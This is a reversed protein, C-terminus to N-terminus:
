LYLLPRPMPWILQSPLVSRYQRCAEQHVGAIGLQLVVQKIDGLWADGEFLMGVAKSGILARTLQRTRCQQAMRGGHRRIGPGKHRLRNRFSQDIQFQAAAGVFVPWVVRRSKQRVKFLCQCCDACTCAGGFVSARRRAQADAKDPNKVAALSHREGSNDGLSDRCAM